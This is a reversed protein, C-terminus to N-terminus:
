LPTYPTWTINLNRNEEDNNLCHLSKQVEILICIKRIHQPHHSHNKYTWINHQLTTLINFYQRIKNVHYTTEHMGFDQHQVSWYMDWKLWDTSKNLTQLKLLSRNQYESYQQNDQGCTTNRWHWASKTQLEKSTYSYSKWVNLHMLTCMLDTFFSPLMEVSMVMMAVAATTTMTMTMMMMVDNDDDDDCNDDGDWWWWWFLWRGLDPYASKVTRFKIM